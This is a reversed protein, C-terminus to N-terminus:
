IDIGDDEYEYNKNYIYDNIEDEKSTDDAIDHLDNSTYLDNDYYSTIENVVNDKDQEVGIKLLRHFFLKLSQLIVHLYNKLKRNEKQLEDNKYKLRNVEYQINRKETELEKYSSTYDTLEQFLAQNNPMEKIVRKSTDMFNNLTEFTDKDIKVEKGTITPKSTKLKEELEEYDRTMLYNQKELRNDLKKTIKKFEKISIHENDSNKIGRELDFNNNILREYYKDQLKSLHAKDKIYQKKSITWKESNTRKDFKKILPVVVCHLHPTKEDLHVTAHLVQEKKYGLDNYVFDMCTDAWKKIQKKNMDKFFDLDSTFLLEDAVVNNSDDVMQRFSRKRDDRMTEMRKDHEQKYEKTLEYFGKIYKNALPVVEINNKTKSIVIDPNSKYSKKERKNHSGIQALDSLKNIPEVRFIAYSM